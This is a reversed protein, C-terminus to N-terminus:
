ECFLSLRVSKSFSSLNQPLPLIPSPITLSNPISMCINWISLWCPGVTYSQSSQESNPPLRSPLPTQPFISVRTHIASDKWQEGLIIMVNNIALNCYLIFLKVYNTNNKYLKRTTLIVGQPISKYKLFTSHSIKIQKLSLHVCCPFVAGSRIWTISTFLKQGSIQNYPKNQNRKQFYIKKQLQFRWLDLFLRELRHKHCYWLAEQM